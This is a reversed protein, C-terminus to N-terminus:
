ALSLWHYTSKFVSLIVIDKRRLNRRNFLDLLASRVVRIGASAGFIWILSTKEGPIPSFPKLLKRILGSVGVLCVPSNCCFWAPGGATPIHSTLLVQLENNVDRYASASDIREM